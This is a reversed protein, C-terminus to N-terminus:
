QKDFESYIKTLKTSLRADLLGFRSRLMCDKPKLDSDKHFTTRHYNDAKGSDRYKEFTDFDKESLYVQLQEGEHHSFEELLPQMLKEVAEGDLKVGDLVRETLAFIIKPIRNLADTVSDEVDKEIRDLLDTQYAVMEQRQEALQLKFHDEADEKGKQYAKEIADDYESKPIEPELWASVKVSKLPRDFRINEKYWSM